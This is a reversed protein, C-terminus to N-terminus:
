VHDPLHLLFTEDPPYQGDVIACATPTRGHAYRLLKSGLHGLLHNICPDIPAQEDGGSPGAITATCRYYFLDLPGTNRDCQDGSKIPYCDRYARGPHNGAGPYLMDAAVGFEAICFSREKLLTYDFCRKPSELGLHLM